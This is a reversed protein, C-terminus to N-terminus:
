GKELLILEKNEPISSLYELRSYCKSSCFKRKPASQLLYNQMQSCEPAAFKVGLSYLPSALQM